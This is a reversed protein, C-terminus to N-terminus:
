NSKEIYPPNHNNSIPTPPNFLRDFVIVMGLVAFATMFVRQLSEFTSREQYQKRFTSYWYEQSDHDKFYHLASLVSHVDGGQKVRECLLTELEPLQNQAPNQPKLAKPTSTNLNIAQKLM